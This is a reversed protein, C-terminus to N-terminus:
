FLGILAAAVLTARDDLVPARARPAGGDRVCMLCVCAPPAAMGSRAHPPQPPRAAALAGGDRVSPPAYARAAPSPRIRPWRLAATVRLPHPPPELPPSGAECTPTAAADRTRNHLELVEVGHISLAVTLHYPEAPM